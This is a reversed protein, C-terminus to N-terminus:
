PDAFNCDIELCRNPVWTSAVSITSTLLSMRVCVWIGRWINGHDGAVAVGLVAVARGLEPGEQGEEQGKGQGEPASVPCSEREALRRM